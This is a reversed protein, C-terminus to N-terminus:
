CLYTGELEYYLAKWGTEEDKSEYLGTVAAAMCESIKVAVIEPLNIETSAAEDIIAHTEQLIAKTKNADEVYQKHTKMESYIEQAHKIKTQTNITADDITNILAKIGMREHMGLAPCSVFAKLSAKDQQLKRYVVKNGSNKM